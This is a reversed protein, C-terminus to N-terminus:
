RRGRSQARLVSNIHDWMEYHGPELWKGCECYESYASGDEYFAYTHGAPLNGADALEEYQEIRRERESNEDLAEGESM